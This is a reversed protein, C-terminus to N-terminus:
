WKMAEGVKKKPTKKGWLVKSFFVVCRNKVVFFLVELSGSGLHHCSLYKINEGRGPSSEWKSSCIKWIPQNLWWGADWLASFDVMSFKSSRGPGSQLWPSKGQDHRESALRKTQGFIDQLRKPDHPERPIWPHNEESIQYAHLDHPLCPNFSLPNRIRNFHSSCFVWHLEWAEKQPISFVLKIKLNRM